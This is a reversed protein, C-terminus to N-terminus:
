RVQPISSGHRRRSLPGPLRDFHGVFGGDNSASGSVAQNALFTPFVLIPVRNTVVQGKNVKVEERTVVSPNKAGIGRVPPHVAM